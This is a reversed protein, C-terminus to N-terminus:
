QRLQSAEYTIAAGAGAGPLMGTSAARGALMKGATRVSVNEITGKALKTTMQKFIANYSNRGATLGPFRIGPIFGTAAGIATDIALSSANFECQKGSLAKLGQRSLNSFAGGAAGAGVPGTYLLAWGGVAGGIASGAYDEWGSVHGSMADALAQGFIGVAAGGM